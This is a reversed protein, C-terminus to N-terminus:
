LIIAADRPCEGTYLIAFRKPQATAALRYVEDRYKSHAIVIGSQVENAANTEPDEVLVWESKFRTEIETITMVNAM